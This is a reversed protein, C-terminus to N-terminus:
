DKKLTRQKEARQVVKEDVFLGKRKRISNMYRRAVNERDAFEGLEKLEEETTPVWFPDEDISEFGSFVLQPSAAGSTRKRIEESFGFAEVVPIKATVTFFSTGEKLEEKVVSGRRKQVVAYVKGLVETAAQIDCTYMALMIRPSWERFGKHIMDRTSSILRGALNAVESVKGDSESSIDIIDKLFVAVGQMQEAALPGASTALQFGSLLSFPYEFRQKSCSKDFIRRVDHKESDFLYKTSSIRNVMDSSWVFVNERNKLNETGHFLKGLKDTFEDMSIVRSQQIGNDDLEDGEAEDIKINTSDGAEDKDNQDGKGIQKEFGAINKTNHMLYETVKTPLPVTQFIIKYKGLVLEQTGRSPDPKSDMNVVITERYPIVPKSSSIEIGAFRERLDKLCRELHLEGATALIHEGTGQVYTKVCPDAQNLLELGKELKDMQTPNEPELAVKVIPPSTMGRTALNIGLTGTNVLTGSKLLHGDLGKKLSIMDRGMLLYLGTIKTTSIYKHPKSPNFRPQLVSVEDGVSLTGSYIRAFGIATEKETENETENEQTDATLDEEEDEFKFEPEEEIKKSESVRAYMDDSENQVQEMMKVAEAAKAAAARAQRGREILEDHTLAEKQNEPLEETPILLMKSIYCSLKENKCCDIMNERLQHDILEAGPASDLISEIRQKQSELPSPLKDAVTLLVANAVPLWQSMVTKILQKKDKSRLERPTIRIKLSKVVKELKEQDHNLIAINYIFWINNLVFNVFSAEFQSRALGKVNDGKQDQSGSLLRGVFIETAKRQFCWAKKEYIVAFQAINFGWGDIASAFIVNNKEPSFYIDSDDKEKFEIKEGKELKEKWLYDEQMRDGAYFSGIVSNVQEIVKSLHQYAESPTMQLEMILRDIKNLVLVPKLKDVWCQRLVSITQSCVGEVVDVLVVAGDCLRSAISVESSFDVHGPSDILNILYEKIESKEIPSKEKEDTSKEKHPRHITKFYLSIASSEMTIGRLQEDPRADLYRIQGAMRQSIIGNSALLSDSLSTKGHDVHALICINRIGDTNEQLHEIEKQSLRMKVSSLRKYGSRSFYPEKSSVPKLNLQSRTLRSM